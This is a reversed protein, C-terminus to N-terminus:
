RFSDSGILNSDIAIHYRSLHDVKYQEKNQKLLERMLKFGMEFSSALDIKLLDQLPLSTSSPPISGGVVRISGLM